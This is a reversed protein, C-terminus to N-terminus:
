VLPLLSPQLYRIKRPMWLVALAYLLNTALNVYIMIIHINLLFNSKRGAGYITFALVFAKYTFYIIFAICLLFTADQLLNQRNAFLFSNAAHIGMFVILFSAAIRFYTSYLTISHIVFNETIWVTVLFGAILFFTSEKKFLRIEKFFWTLLLSELLVYINTNIMTSAKRIFVLYFSLLENASGIWLCYLFPYYRKDIKSFRILAIVAAILVSSAALIYFYRM